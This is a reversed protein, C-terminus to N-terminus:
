LVFKWLFLVLFIIALSVAIKWNFGNETDSAQKEPLLHPLNKGMYSVTNKDINIILPESGYTPVYGQWLIKSLKDPDSVVLKKVGGTVVFDKSKRALIVSSHEVSSVAPIISIIQVSVEDSSINQIVLRNPM